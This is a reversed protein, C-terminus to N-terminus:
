LILQADSIAGLADHRVEGWAAVDHASSWCNIMTRLYRNYLPKSATVASSPRRLYVIMHPTRSKSCLRHVIGIACPLNNAVYINLLCQALDISPICALSAWHKRFTAALDQVAQVSICVWSNWRHQICASQSKELFCISTECGWEM